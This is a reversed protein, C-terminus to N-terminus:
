DGERRTLVWFDHETIKRTTQVFWAWSKDPDRNKFADLNGRLTVDIVIPKGLYLVVKDLRFVWPYKDPYRVKRHPKKEPPSIVEAHGVVGSRSAFFCIRDGTKLHKRGPTREGFAYIKEQGVLTQIVEEVTGEENSKVPTLWYAAESEISTETMRHVGKM